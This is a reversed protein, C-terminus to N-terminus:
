FHISGSNRKEKRRNSFQLIELRCQAAYMVLRKYKEKTKPQLNSPLTLVDQLALKTLDNATM